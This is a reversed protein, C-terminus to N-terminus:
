PNICCHELEESKIAGAGLMTCNPHDLMVHHSVEVLHVRLHGVDISRSIYYKKSLAFQCLFVLYTTLTVYLDIYSRTGIALIDLIVM